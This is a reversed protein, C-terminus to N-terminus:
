HFRDEEIAIAYDVREYIVSTGAHDIRGKV